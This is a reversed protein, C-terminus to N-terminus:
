RPMARAVIELSAGSAVELAASARDPNRALAGLVALADDLLGHHALDVLPELLEAVWHLFDLITTLSEATM